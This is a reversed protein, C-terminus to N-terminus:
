RSRRWSMGNRGAAAGGPSYGSPWWKAGGGWALAFDLARRYAQDDGVPVWLREARGSRPIARVELLGRAGAYLARWLAVADV